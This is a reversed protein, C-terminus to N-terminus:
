MIIIIVNKYYAGNSSLAVQYIKYGALGDGNDDYVRTNFGNVQVQVNKIAELFQTYFCLFM